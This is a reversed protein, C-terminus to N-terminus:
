RLTGACGCFFCRCATRCPSCRALVVAYSALALFAAPRADALVVANSAPALLAAHRADALVVAFSALALEAAARADALVVAYSALALIAPLLSHSRDLVPPFPFSTHIRTHSLSPSSLSFLSRSRSLSVTHSHSFSLCFYVSVKSLYLSPALSFTHFNTASPMMRKDLCLLYCCAECVLLM